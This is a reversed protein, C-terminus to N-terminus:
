RSIPRLLRGARGTPHSRVVLPIRGENATGRITVPAQGGVTKLAEITVTLVSGSGSLPLVGYTAVRCTGNKVSRAVSDGSAIGSAEVSVIAIRSSDYGLSLDLGLIGDANRLDITVERRAGARLASTWGGLSVEAPGAVLRRLAPRRAARGLLEASKRDELMAALEDPSGANASTKSGPSPEWNGTVDGYLIAYFDRGTEVQSIPSFTQVPPGCGTAGPYAYTDCRLFKWDSGTATAVDFHDVLAVAFRAVLSADLASVTGDGTVDAAIMQNPSLTVLDTAARGIVSADFSSIAGNHDSARLSGYKAVTSVTVEGSVSGFAYTGTGDSTADAIADQTRDIGVNPVPKTSPESGSGRDDRYYYVTGDIGCMGSAATVCSGTSTECAQDTCINGDDCAVPAGAACTGNQCSDGQTCANGDDCECDSFCCGPIVQGGCVRNACTDGSTCRNGDDCAAANPTDQCRGAVCTNDTCPNADVCDGDTTCTGSVVSRLAGLDQFSAGGSWVNPSGFSSSTGDQYDAFATTSPGPDAQLKFVEDSGVGSVPNIGEGAPGFAIEGSADRITIQTNQQSVSFDLNSIYLGDGSPGARLNIWWDGGAPDYGVDSALDETVTIITGSRLDSLIAAGTFTLTTSIAGSNDNVIVQWGRLDLHDQVVVLEFWDGGNGLVTGWYTDTGSSALFKTPAVANYENVVIRAVRPVNAAGPTPYVFSTLNASGDPNRGYSENSGLAPYSLSDLALGDASFLWVPGGTASLRFSAHLPGEAPEADAWVVLWAGGCLITGPPIPWKDPVAPDDTLFSGSLDVTASFPNYLEIWPDFDGYEDSRATVNLPLVENIYAPPIPAFTADNIASWTTGALARAKVHNLQVIVLPGAYATAVPSIGGGPLRPDSDDLTYYIVGAVATMTLNFGTPVQGPIHNFTPPAPFQGDVWTLRDSLWQKMWDIEDQYTAGIYWNPWVYSGLIPWRAYNRAQSESLLAAYTDIDALLTETRFAGRRLAYWRDAYRLQFEPDEFLRPWWPYSSEDLIDHYWGDSLWGDNYNANGLSLNYDWIPGMNLKEERDKFMFTSLRFGDINKTMEVLIHHDIFSDVDIFGAYGDVPDEFGPGYLASEMQNLYGSLYAAQAATIEQEKPEVYALRQGSSTLFGVDGPDLRDKKIIYGGTVGPPQSDTPQLDVLNVRNEDQKIKEELVYVGVYDSASVPGAAKRLFAEMFRTRVAYRGIDNSWKYALVNRMFTKDTYPGYLIWDSEAPLGLLSVSLDSRHDDWTELAYQQKPFGASSSGRIRIGAPGAFGPADTIAARARFHPYLEDPDGGAM